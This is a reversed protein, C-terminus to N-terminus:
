GQIAGITLVNVLEAIADVEDESGQM